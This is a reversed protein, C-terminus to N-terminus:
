LSVTATVPQLLQPPQHICPPPPTGLACRQTPGASTSAAVPPPLLLHHHSDRDVIRIVMTIRQGLVSNVQTIGGSFYCVCTHMLVESFAITM